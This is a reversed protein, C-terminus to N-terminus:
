GFNSAIIGRILSAGPYDMVTIGLCRKKVNRLEVDMVQNPFGDNKALWYPFVGGSGSLGNIKM